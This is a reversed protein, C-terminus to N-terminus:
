VPPPPKPIHYHLAVKLEPSPDTAADRITKLPAAEDASRTLWFKFLPYVALHFIALMRVFLALAAFGDGAVLTSTLAFGVYSAACFSTRVLNRPKYEVGANGPSKTRDRQRDTIRARILRHKVLWEETGDIIIPKFMFWLLLWCAVAPLSLVGVWRMPLIMMVILLTNIAIWTM